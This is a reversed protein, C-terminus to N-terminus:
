MYEIIYLISLYVFLDLNKVYDYTLRNNITHIYFLAFALCSSYFNKVVACIKCFIDKCKKHPMNSEKFTHVYRGIYFILMRTM